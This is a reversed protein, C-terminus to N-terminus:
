SFTPKYVFRLMPLTVAANSTIKIENMTFVSPDTRSVPFGTFNSPTGPDLYLFGEDHYLFALESTSGDTLVTKGNLANCSLYKGAGSSLEATLARLKCRTHNTVNEFTIGENIAGAIQIEVAAPETGGNYLHITYPENAQLAIGNYNTTPTDAANLLFTNNKMDVDATTLLYLNDTRGFPYYARMKITVFGNYRNTRQTEVSVVTAVYWLWPRTSFILKGTRGRRFYHEVNMQLGSNIDRGEYFCQLTFDKPKVQTGYMYGGHHATFTDEDVAYQGQRYVYMDQLSPVYELGFTGINTGCFSFGGTIEQAM